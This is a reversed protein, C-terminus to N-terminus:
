VLLLLYPSLVPKKLLYIVYLKHWPSILQVRFCGHVFLITNLGFEMVFRYTFFKEIFKHAPCSAATCEPVMSTLAGMLRDFASYYENISMDNQEIVPTQQMLTYSLVVTRFM